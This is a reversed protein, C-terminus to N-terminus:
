GMVLLVSLRNFAAAKKPDVAPGDPDFMSLDVAPSATAFTPIGQIGDPWFHRSKDGSALLARADIIAAGTRARMEATEPLHGPSLAVVAAVGPRRAAYGIAANAGLSHGVIVIRRAGKGKLGVVVGDIERM